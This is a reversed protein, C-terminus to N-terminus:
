RSASSILPPVLVLEMYVLLDEVERPNGSEPDRPIETFGLPRYLAQAETM